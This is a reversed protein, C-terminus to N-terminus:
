RSRAHGHKDAGVDALTEAARHVVAVAQFAVALDALEVAALAAAVVEVESGAVMACGNSSNLEVDRPRKM